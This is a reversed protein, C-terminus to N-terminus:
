GDYGVEQLNAAIAADLTAAEAQEASGTGM